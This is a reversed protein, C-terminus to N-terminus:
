IKEYYDKYFDYIMKNSIVANCIGDKDKNSKYTVDWPGNSVHTEQVLNWANLKAKKKLVKNIIKKKDDDIDEFLKELKNKSPLVIGYCFFSYVSQLVPGHRWALFEENFMSIGNNQLM